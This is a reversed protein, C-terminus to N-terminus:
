FQEDYHWKYKTIIDNYIKPTEKKSVLTTGWCMTKYDAGNWTLWVVIFSDDATEFEKLKVLPQTPDLKARSCISQKNIKIEAIKDSEQTDITKIKDKNWHTSEFLDRLVLAEPKGARILFWFDYFVRPLWLEWMWRSTKYELYDMDLLNNLITYIEQEREPSIDQKFKSFQSEM